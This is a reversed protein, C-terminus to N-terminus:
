SYTLLNPQQRYSIRTAGLSIFGFVRNFPVTHIVRCFTGIEKLTVSWSTVYSYNSEQVSLRGPSLNLFQVTLSKSITVSIKEPYVRLRFLLCIVKTIVCLTDRFCEYGISCVMLSKKVRPLLLYM